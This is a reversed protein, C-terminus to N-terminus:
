APIEAEKGARLVRATPAAQKKLAAMADEAKSETFFGILANLVMVALISVAELIDGIAFAVATAIALLLIILSKFQAVFIAFKSRGKKEELENPGHQQLRQTAVESSLGQKADGGLHRAAEEVPLTHWPQTMRGQPERSSATQHSKEM